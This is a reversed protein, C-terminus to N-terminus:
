EGALIREFTGYENSIAMAVALLKEVAREIRERRQAEIWQGVRERRRVEFEPAEGRASALLRDLLASRSVLKSTGIQKGPLNEMLQLARRREVRPGKRRHRPRFNRV